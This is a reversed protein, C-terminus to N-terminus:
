KMNVYVKKGAKIAIGKYAGDVRQGNLNYLVDNDAKKAGEVANIATAEGDFSIFLREKASGGTSSLDLYAKGAPVHATAEAQNGPTSFTHAFMVGATEERNVLVYKLLGFVDVGDATTVGVLYNNDIVEGEEAMPISYEAGADGKLILGTGAAVAGVAETLTVAGDSVDDDTVYYVELGEPLNSLDLAYTSAFTSYGQDGITATVSAPVYDGTKQIYILDIGRGSSPDSCTFTIDTEQTLTFEESKLQTLFNGTCLGEIIQTDGASVTYAVKHTNNDGGIAGLTFIYKGAPLSLLTGEAGYIITGGSIRSGFTTGSTALGTGLEEAESLLYLDTINASTYALDETYGDSTVTVSAKLDNGSPARGVLTSTEYAQFRPYAISVTPAYEWVTGSTSWALANGDYSSTIIYSWQQAARVDVNLVNEETASITMTPVTAGDYLYVVEDEDGTIQTDATIVLDAAANGTVTKVVDDGNKYKITYPYESVADDYVNYFSVYDMYAYYTQKTATLGKVDEVSSPLNYTGTLTSYSNNGSSVLVTYSVVKNSLNIDLVIRNHASRAQRFWNTGLSVGNSFGWTKTANGNSFGADTTGFIEVGNSDVVKFTEQGNTTTTYNAEFHVIGKTAPTEFSKAFSATSALVSGEVPMANTCNAGNADSHSFDSVVTGDEITFDTQPTVGTIVEDTYVATGYLITYVDDAWANSGVLLCVAALLMKLYTKNM